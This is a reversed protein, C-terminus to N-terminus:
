LDTPSSYLLILFRTCILYDFVPSQIGPVSNLITSTLNICSAGLGPYPGYWLWLTENLIQIPDKQTLAINVVKDLPYVASSRGTRLTAYNFEAANSYVNVILRYLLKLDTAITPAICLGLEEKLGSTNNTAFREGLNDLANKINQSAKYSKDQYVNNMWIGWNFRDEDTLLGEAPPASAIAGYFAEPRNQRFVTSLFGGYSGSAVIAKSNEAGSINKKLFEVFSAADAM